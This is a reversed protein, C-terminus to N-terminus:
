WSLDDIVKKSGGYGFDVHEFRVEGRPVAAGQRRTRGGGVTGQSLTAMGDQVTGVHEFLSAMEWMVWHSIGNLRLAMATAAAVAGVGV